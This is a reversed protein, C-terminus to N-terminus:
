LSVVEKKKRGRKKPEEAEEVVEPEVAKEASEEKADEKIQKQAPLVDVVKDLNETAKNLTVEKPLGERKKIAEKEEDSLVDEATKGFPVSLQLKSETM